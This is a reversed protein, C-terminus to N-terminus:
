SGHFQKVGMARVFAGDGRQEAPATWSAERPATAISMRAWKRGRIMAKELDTEM